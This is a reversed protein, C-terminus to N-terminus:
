TTTFFSLNVDIYYAYGYPKVRLSVEIKNTAVVNQDPDVSTIVGKDTDDDPDTGLNGQNTMGQEIATEVMAEIAKATGNPIGGTSSVPIEMGVEEVLTKYAIRFAKDITRRRPIMGYDDTTATALADGSWYFGAKGTWTRPTIYGKGHLTAANANNIPSAGLAMNRAKIAGDSVRAVSTQVANHAIRGLLLGVAGADDLLADTTADGTVENGCVVAVRNSDLLTLNEASGITSPAPTGAVVLVPAYLDDVLDEAADNLADVDTDLDASAIPTVVGIARCAGNSLNQLSTVGAASTTPKANLVWLYSGEGAEEYFERIMEYTLADTGTKTVCALSTILYAAGNNDTYANIVVAGDPVLGCIGDATPETIGLAGNQFAIKVYPLLSTM